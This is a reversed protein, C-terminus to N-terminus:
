PHREQDPPTAKRAEPEKEPPAPPPLTKKEEHPPEDQPNDFERTVTTTFDASAKRVSRVIKGLTRAIETMRGPGLLILALIIILVIEWPGIGLFGM